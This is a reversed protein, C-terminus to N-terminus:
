GMKPQVVTTTFSKKKKQVHFGNKQGNKQVVLEFCLVRIVNECM